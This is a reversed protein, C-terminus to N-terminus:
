AWCLQVTHQLDLSFFCCLLGRTPALEFAIQIVAELLLRSFAALATFDSGNKLNTPAFTLTHILQNLFSRTSTSTNEMLLVYIAYNM